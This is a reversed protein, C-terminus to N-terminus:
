PKEELFADSIARISRFNALTIARDPIAIELSSEVFAILELIQLSDILGTEFLPTDADVDPRAGPRLLAERVRCVLRSEFTRRNM